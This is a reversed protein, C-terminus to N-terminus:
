LSAAKAVWAPLACTLVSFKSQGLRIGPLRRDASMARSAANLADYSIGTIESAERLSCTVPVLDEGGFYRAISERVSDEVGDLLSTKADM